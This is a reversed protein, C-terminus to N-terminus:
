TLDAFPYPPPPQDDIGKVSNAIMVTGMLEEFEKETIEDGTMIKKEIKKAISRLMRLATMPNYPNKSM